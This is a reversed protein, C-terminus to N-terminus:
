TFRTEPEKVYLMVLIRSLLVTVALMILPLNSAIQYLLASVFSGTAIFVGYLASAIAMVRGRKKRESLDAILANAGTCCFTGAAWLVSTIGMILAFSRGVFALPIIFPVTVLGHLLLSNRRGFKDIISGAVIGFLGYSVGNAIAILGWESKSLGVKEVFHLAWFPASGAEGFLLISQSLILAILPRPLSKGLEIYSSLPNVNRKQKSMVFGIKFTEHLFLRITAAAIFLIAVMFYCLRLMAVFEGMQFLLVVVYPAPFAILIPAYSVLAFGKGRDEPTVSEAIIANMAPLYLLALSGLIGGLFVMSWDWAIAYFIYSIGLLTTMMVIVHKRGISDALYGGALKTFTGLAKSITYFLGIFIASASLTSLYLSEYPLVIRQAFRLIAGSIILLLLNKTIFKSTNELKNFTKLM